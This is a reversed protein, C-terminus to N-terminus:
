RWVMGSFFMVRLQQNTQETILPLAMLNGVTHEELWLVASFLTIAM